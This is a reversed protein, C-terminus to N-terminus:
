PTSRDPRQPGQDGRALLADVQRLADHAQARAETDATPGTPTSPTAAMSADDRHDTAAEAGVSAAYEATTVPQPARPAKGDPATPSTAAALARKRQALIRWAVGGALLLMLAPGLWLVANRWSWSPRYLVFEGYRDVLYQKVQADDMGSAVLRVVEHRLDQALPAHSDLLTQNQCVLCRLEHALQRFRPSRMIAEANPPLADDESPFRVPDDGVAADSQVPAPNLAAQALHM